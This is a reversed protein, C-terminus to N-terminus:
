ASMLSILLKKATSHYRRTRASEKFRPPNLPITAPLCVIPAFDRNRDPLHKKSATLMINPHPRDVDTTEAWATTGGSGCRATLAGASVGDLVAGVVDTAISDPVTRMLAAELDTTSRSGRLSIVAGEDVRGSTDGSAAGAVRVVMTAGSITSRAVAGIPGRKGAEAVAASGASADGDAFSAPASEFGAARRALRMRRADADDDRRVVRRDRLLRFVFQSLPMTSLMWRPM